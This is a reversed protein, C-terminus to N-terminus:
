ARAARPSYCPCPRTSERHPADVNEEEIGSALQGRSPGCSPSVYAASYTRSSFLSDRLSVSCNM